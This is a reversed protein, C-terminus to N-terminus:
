RGFHLLPRRYVAGLGVLREKRESDRASRERWLPRRTALRQLEVEREKQVTILMITPVM